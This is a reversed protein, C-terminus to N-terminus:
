RTSDPPASSPPHIVLFNADYTLVGLLMAAAVREYPFRHYQSGDTHPWPDAVAIERTQPDLGHLVVFHGTSHGELDDPKDDHPRERMSEYLYTASLGTLIPGRRLLQGLLDFHLHEWRVSGGNELFELYFETATGLRGDDAKRERQLRLREALDIDPRRFWTPDFLQLNYTYIEAAYGRRLAHCGLQVALRGGTELQAIEVSLQRADTDEGFHRYVAQLCTPGCSRGDPQSDIRFPWSSRMAKNSGRRTAFPAM